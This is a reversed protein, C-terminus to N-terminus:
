FQRPFRELIRTVAQHIEREMWDQNDIVGDMIGEAWGRWVLKNTQTDVVDLLITGADYVYTTCNDCSGYKQDAGNLNLKQTISAHYHLRVDPTASTTKELGRAALLKEVEATVRNHFFPNADLRPDGTSLSDTPDWDFTRYRNFDAGREVYSSVKIPACAGLSLAFMTAAMLRTCRRPSHM